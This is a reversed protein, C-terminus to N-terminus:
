INCVYDFFLAYQKLDNTLTGVYNTPSMCAEIMNKEPLAFDEM